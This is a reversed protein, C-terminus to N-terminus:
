DDDGTDDTSDDVDDEDTDPEDDDNPGGGSPSQYGGQTVVSKKSNARDCYAKNRAYTSDESVSVCFDPWNFRSAAISTSSFMLSSSLLAAIITASLKM